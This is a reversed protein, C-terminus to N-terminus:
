RYWRQWPWPRDSGADYLLGGFSEDVSVGPPLAFGGELAYGGYSNQALCAAVGASLCTGHGSGGLFAQTALEQEDVALGETEQWEGEDKKRINGATVSVGPSSSMLLYLYVNDWRDWTIRVGVWLNISISGYQTPPQYCNQWYNCMGATFEPSTLSKGGSWRSATYGQPPTWTYGYSIGWGKMLKELTAIDANMLWDNVAEDPFVGTGFFVGDMYNTVANWAAVCTDMDTSGIEYNNICHGTPDILNVPDNDTYAYRNFSQPNGPEPVITDASVFRGVDPLYYRANM